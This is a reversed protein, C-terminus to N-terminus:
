ENIVIYPAAFTMDAYCVHVVGTSVSWWVIVVVLNLIFVVGSM